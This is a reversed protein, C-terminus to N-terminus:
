VDITKEKIKSELKERYQALLRTIVCTRTCKRGEQHAKDIEQELREFYEARLDDTGPIPNEKISQSIWSGLKRVVEPDKKNPQPVKAAERISEVKAQAVGELRYDKIYVSRRDLEMVWPVKKGEEIKFFRLKRTQSM